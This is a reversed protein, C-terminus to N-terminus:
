ESVDEVGKTIFKKVVEAAVSMKLGELTYALNDWSADIDDDFWIKLMAMCQDPVAPNESEFFLMEDSAYGLKAGLKKWDDAIVCSLEKMQEETPKNNVVATAEKSQEDTALQEASLEEEVDEEDGVGQEMEVSEEEQKVVTGAQNNAGENREKIIRKRINELYDSVKNSSTSPAHAVFFYPSQRALLRLARWENSADKKGKESQTEELYTELSPMFSRDGGKCSQLNDPCVNWLKTLESNGMFFKNNRTADRIVDGLLRKPRRSKKVPSVSSSDEANKDVLDPKKFEKCGDNKWNNWLEERQLVHRVSACFKKGQPPTEELLQFVTAETEKIWEAQATTLALSEAKFKVQSTLYQFLILFQVLVSRRFHSDSLQLSLLKPNTLFKAFFHHGEAILNEASINNVDDVDMTAVAEKSSKEKDRNSRNSSNNNNRHEELKFSKFASLVNGAHTSFIKWQAATYCQNPNRFFDQLAWFKCYLNFDIQLPADETSEATTETMEKGDSGYETLNELNFESVINLGSRESFPFFKALFLLIRGCFVTNQSRSLRRLLDNCMRLLNNKCAVFFIEEKWVSVNKEVYTFMQECQDLTVADFVDGLLVVPMTTTVMDNRCALVSFSIFKEVLQVNLEDKSLLERVLVDRFSQDLAAKKDADSGDLSQFGGKLGDIAM